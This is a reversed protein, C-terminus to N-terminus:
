ELDRPYVVEKLEWNCRFANAWCDCEGELLAATATKMTMSVSSLSHVVAEWGPNHGMVLLTEVEESVGLLKSELDSPGALYLEKTFETGIGPEWEELMLQTTERTRQADSSLVFQPQWDIKTLHRAVLPASRRGRDNLPRDWDRNVSSDWSSKAHRM